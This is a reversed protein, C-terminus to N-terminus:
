KLGARLCAAADNPALSSPFLARLRWDPGMLYFYSTHDITYGMTSGPDPTRQWGVRFAKAAAGVQEPSGTLGVLGAPFVDASVYSALAEPTDRAPDLSVLVPQITRGQEGLADIAKRAMVLSAPCIDPCYTFGFYLLTPAGTFDAQTVPRKTQDTLAIPGGVQDNAGLVCGAGPTSAPAGPRTYYLAGAIAALGGALALGAAVGSARKHFAEQKRAADQRSPTKQEAM